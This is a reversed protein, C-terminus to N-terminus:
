EPFEGCLWAAAYLVECIGNRQSNNALLHSRYVGGCVTRVWRRGATDIGAVGVWASLVASPAAERHCAGPRTANGASM